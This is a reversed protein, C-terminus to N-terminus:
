RKRTTRTVADRIEDTVKRSDKVARVKASDPAKFKEDLQQQIDQRSCGGKAPGGTSKEIARSSIAKAQGLQITGPTGTSKGARGVRQAVKDTHKHALNHEEGAGKELCIAPGKALSPMDPLQQGAAGRKGTRLMWDPVVHHAEQGTECQLEDYPVLECRRGPKRKVKKSHGGGGGNAGKGGAAEAEPKDKSKPKKDPETKPAQTKPRTAKASMREGGKGGPNDAASELGMQLGMGLYEWAGKPKNLPDPLEGQDANVSDLASKKVGDWVQEYWAKDPQSKGGAPAPSTQPIVKGVTNEGGPAAGSAPKTQAKKEGESM